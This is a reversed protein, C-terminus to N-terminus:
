AMLRSSAVYRDHIWLLALVVALAIFGPAAYVGVTLAGGGNTALSPLERVGVLTGHLIAVAFLSGSRERVYAFIPAALMCWAVMLPAGAAPEGPYGFGILVAPMHWVGWVLGVTASRRWFGQGLTGLEHHLFGRWGLEEGLSTIANITVGAVMAQMLMRLIPSVGGDAVSERVHREFQAFQEPDGRGRFHALFSELDTALEAGPMAGGLTWALAVLTVPVLWAILWWRNLSLSLGLPGLLPEKCLAGKVALAALAPPLTYLRWVAAAAPTGWQGGMAAFTGAVAWSAVFAIGIFLALKRGTPM